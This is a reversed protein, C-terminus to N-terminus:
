AIYQGGNALFYPTLFFKQESRECFKDGVKLINASDRIIGRGATVTVKQGLFRILIDGPGPVYM